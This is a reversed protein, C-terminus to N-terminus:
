NMRPQKLRKTAFIGLSEDFGFMGFFIFQVIGGEGM